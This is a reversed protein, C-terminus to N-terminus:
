TREQSMLVFVSPDDEVGDKSGPGFPQWAMSYIKKQSLLFELHAGVWSFLLSLLESGM